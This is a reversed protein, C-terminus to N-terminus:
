LTWEPSRLGSESKIIGTLMAVGQETFAFPLYKRHQGQAQKLTV